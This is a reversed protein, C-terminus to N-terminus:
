FTQIEVNVICKKKNLYFCVPNLKTKFFAPFKLPSLLQMMATEGREELNLM